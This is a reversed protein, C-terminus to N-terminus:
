REEETDLHAKYESYLDRLDDFSLKLLDLTKFFHPLEHITFEEKQLSRTHEYAHGAMFYGIGRQNSLIGREQLYAYTRMVTNPNVEINVAMERVSPIRDGERWKKSLINECIYDGIQLYIAKNKRFEM